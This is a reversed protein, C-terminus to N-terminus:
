HDSLGCFDGLRGKEKLVDEGPQLVKLLVKPGIADTQLVLCNIKESMCSPRNSWSFFSWHLVCTDQHIVIEPVIPKWKGVCFLGFLMIGYKYRKRGGDLITSSCTFLCFLGLAFAPIGFKGFVCLALGAFLLLGGAARGTPGFFSYHRFFIQTKM